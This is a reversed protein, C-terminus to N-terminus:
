HRGEMRGMSDAADTQVSDLIDWVADQCRRLLGPDEQRLRSDQSVQEYRDVAASFREWAGPLPSRSDFRRALEDAHGGFYAEAVAQDGLKGRLARAWGQEATYSAFGPEEGRQRMADMAYMETLGENIGTNSRSLEAVTGDGPRVTAVTREVGSCVLAVRARPSVDLQRSFQFSLDHVTEHTAAHRLAAGDDTDRVCIKGSPAERFATVRCDPGPDTVLDSFADDNYIELKNSDLESRMRRINEQDFCDPYQELLAKRTRLSSLDATRKKQDYDAVARRNQEQQEASAWHRYARSELAQETQALYDAATHVDRPADGGEQAFRQSRALDSAQEPGAQRTRDLDMAM